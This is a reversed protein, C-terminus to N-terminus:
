FDLDPESDSMPGSLLREDDPHRKSLAQRAEKVADLTGGNTEWDALAEDYAKQENTRRGRRKPKEVEAAEMEQGLQTLEDATEEAAQLAQAVDAVIEVTIEPTTAEPVTESDRGSGKNELPIASDEASDDEISFDEEAEMVVAQAYIQELSAEVPANAFLFLTPELNSKPVRKARPPNVWDEDVIHTLNPMSRKLKRVAALVAHRDRREAFSPLEVIGDFARGQISGANPAHRVTRFHRGKASAWAYTEHISNSLIITQM